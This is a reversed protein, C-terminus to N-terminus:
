KEDSRLLKRMTSHQREFAMEEFFLEGDYNSASVILDTRHTGRSMFYREVERMLETGFGLHRYSPKVFISKIYGFKEGTNRDKETRLWLWGVIQNDLVAVKLNETKRKIARELKQKHYESDLIPAEPFSRQAIQREFELITQFDRWQFNRLILNKKLNDKSKTKDVLKFGKTRGCKPCGEAKLEEITRIDETSGVATFEGCLCQYTRITQTIEGTYLKGRYTGTVLPKAKENTLLRLLSTTNAFMEAGRYTNFRPIQEVIALGMKNLIRQMTVMKKPSQHAFALYVVAGQRKQLAEVGRSIFLTLGPITYPPDTFVVDFKHHLIDPLPEKLDSQIPTIQLNEKESISRITRILRGDVDLAVIKEAVGLLGVAISTLDDDGLFVVKRGEVDGRELMFLARLMATEPTGHAQDLWSLSRPRLSSYKSLKEIIPRFEEPIEVRRGNCTPCLLRQSYVFGLKERVFKEGTTTLSAGGNRTLLGQKELERRVAATVPIPLQTQFALDKTSIKRNRYIERLIQRVAEDGEELDAKRSVDELLDLKFRHKKSM